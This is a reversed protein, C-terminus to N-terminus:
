GLRTNVWAFERVISADVGEAQLAPPLVGFTYTEIELHAGFERAHRWFPEDMAGATARLVGDGHYYLPVHFHIRWLSPVPDEVASGLAEDLDAYGLLRGDRLDLAKVQHLYIPDRFAELRSRAEPTPHAELASSLQIKSVLIGHRRYRTLSDSLAEFQIALHCTDVCVGLHRRLIGGAEAPSCALRGALSSAGARALPGEFFAIVEATTELICDPEPELGLHIHRGTQRELAHLGAACEALHAACCAVRPDTMPDSPVGPQRAPKYGLPVTSISGDVGEPLLRALHSALLLTYDVRERTTWDPHYVGTKVPRGHFEGYPFGNITFVYLQHDDLFARFRQLVGPEALERAAQHSLRLGLGFPRDPAVRGRIPLAHDRVAAFVADWSEGPHINLCYTLHM